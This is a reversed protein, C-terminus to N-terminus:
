VNWTLYPHFLDINRFVLDYFILAKAEDSEATKLKETLEKQMPKLRPNNRKLFIEIDRGFMATGQNLRAEIGALVPVMDNFGSQFHPHTFAQFGYATLFEPPVNLLRGEQQMKVSVATGPEMMMNSVIYGSPNLVQLQDIERRVNDRDHWDHGIIFTGAIKVGAAQYEAIEEKLDVGDNKPYPNLMSEIGINVCTVCLDGETLEAPSYQKLIKSSTTTALEVTYGLDRCRKFVEKWVPIDGLGQPDGLSLSIIEKDKGVIEHARGIAAIIEDPSHPASFKGQFQATAPCFDCIYFCGYSTMMVGITSNKIRGNFTTQTRSPVVTIKLPAREEGLLRRMDDIQNGQLLHDALTASEPLTAGVAGAVIKIDPHHRRLHTSVDRFVSYGNLYVSLALNKIDPEQQLMAEVSEVSVPGPIVLGERQTNINLFNGPPNEPAWAFSFNEGDQQSRLQAIHDELFGADYFPPNGREVYEGAVGALYELQRVRNTTNYDFSQAVGYAIPGQLARERSM